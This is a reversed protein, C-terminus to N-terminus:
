KLKKDLYIWAKFSAIGWGVFILLFLIPYNTNATIHESTFFREEWNPIDSYYYSGPGFDLGEILGIDNQMIYIASIIVVIFIVLTCRNLYKIITDQKM